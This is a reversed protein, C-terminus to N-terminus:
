EVVFTSTTVYDKSLTPISGDPEYRGQADKEIKKNGLTVSSIFLKRAMPYVVRVSVSQGSVPTGAVQTLPIVGNAPIGNSISASAPIGNAYIIQVFGDSVPISNNTRVTRPNGSIDSWRIATRQAVVLNKLYYKLSGQTNENAGFNADFAHVAAYRAGERSVQELQNSTSLVVGFQLGGITLPLLVFTMCMATEVIVSAGRRRRNGLPARRPGSHHNKLGSSFKFLSM